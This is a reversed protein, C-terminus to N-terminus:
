NKYHKVLKLDKLRYVKINFAEDMCLFFKDNICNFKELLPINNNM